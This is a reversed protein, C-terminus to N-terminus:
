VQTVRAELLRGWINTSCFYANRNFYEQYAPLVSAWTASRQNNCLSATVDSTNPAFVRSWNSSLMAADAPHHRSGSSM